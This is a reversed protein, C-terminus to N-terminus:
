CTNGFAEERSAVSIHWAAKVVEDAEVVIAPIRTTARVYIAIIVVVALVLLMLALATDAHIL